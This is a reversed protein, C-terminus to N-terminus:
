LSLVERLLKSVAKGSYTLGIEISMTRRSFVSVRSEQVLALQLPIDHNEFFEMFTNELQKMSSLNGFSRPIV